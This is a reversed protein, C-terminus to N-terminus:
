GPRSSPSTPVPVSPSVSMLAHSRPADNVGDGVMAVRLGRDQLDAVKVAKDEPLVESFDEDIGLEVAVADAVQHADGTIMVVKRGQTHLQDVAQRAEPRVEDEVAVAGMVAQQGLLSLVSSGRDKWEDITSVMSDPVTLNSEGLLAPGGPRWAVPSASCKTTAVVM